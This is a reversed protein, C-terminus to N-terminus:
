GVWVLGYRDKFNKNFYTRTGLAQEGRLNPDEEILKFAEDRALRLLALDVTPNALKLEPMGHQRTGFFEGPGRLQLDVEAIKFGDNTHALTELRTRAEASLQGYAILICYSQKSGRGVRGRLQHLQTLGFREAHEVVMVTANPVDVGVEIVTTSVLIQIENRKFASMVAEKEDPRMRGHILGLQFAAFFGQRMREYSEVAAKLDSKESEEVLPFVIYAQAGEQVQKRLFQYIKHRRSEDRWDTKVPKRGAPLEDIVAVDLDGYVTMSLTRPIPTATMVLVHPNLGKERLLARQMVGFRHQEDIVVLGLQYFDVGEQILAHTGTIIRARGDAVRELIEEREKRPQGGILLVVEVGLTELQNRLTLYHQEALIETPAMLAAQYGNEVAILMTILAVITKGSGVDGQLLRNMTRGSKLDARIQRTVRKQAETLQFPLQKVLKRTTEGVQEFRIGGKGEQQHRRRLAVLIEMFFLEDFKLRTQAAQLHEFGDPYHIQQLAQALPMLRHQQIIAAPVTEPIQGAYRKLMASILRRFGRSDFGAKGLAESSPYLPIIKGTHVLDGEGSKGLRDFEPHTMQLGKFVGVKGSVALWEGPQFIKQWYVLRSFWVCHLFGSGDGIVLIFRNRRGRQMGMNIVKGVVTVEQDERLRAIPTVTSRDLYRRPFYYFLDGFTAIGAKHLAAVRKPGIGQLRELPWDLFTKESTTM